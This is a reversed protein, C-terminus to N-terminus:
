VWLDRSDGRSIRVMAGVDWVSTDRWGRWRRWDGERPMEARMWARPMIDKVREYLYRRSKGVM